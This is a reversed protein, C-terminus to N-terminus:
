RKKLCKGSGVDSAITTQNDPVFKWRYTGSRLELRLFGFGSIRRASNAQVNEVGYLSRGGTGVVFSRLGSASPTANADQPDFREFMHDHGTLVLDARAALLEAWFAASRDDNGHKSSSFRPHHWIAAICRKTTTALDTRLWAVQPSDPTCSVYECNSNLAVVHWDGLDISYYGKSEPHSRAGFYTFYGDASGSAYEHNGPVPISRDRFVGFTKDFAAAFASREGTDYQLDGLLLVKSITRDASILNAVERDHCETEGRRSDPSCAVDGVAAVIVTKPRVQPTLRKTSAGLPSQISLLGGAAAFGLSAALGFALRRIMQTRM